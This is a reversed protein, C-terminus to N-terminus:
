VLRRQRDSALSRLRATRLYSDEGVRSVTALLAVLILHYNHQGPMVQAM